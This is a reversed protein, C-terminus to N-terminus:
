RLLMFFLQNGARMILYILLITAIVSLDLMGTNFRSLFKRAPMVIPDTVRCLFYYIKTLFNVRGQYMMPGAFWSLIATIVLAYIIINCLLNFALYAIYM